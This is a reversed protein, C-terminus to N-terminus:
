HGIEVVVTLRSNPTPNPDNVTGSAGGAPSQLSAVSSEGTQQTASFVVTASTAGEPLPLEAAVGAMLARNSVVVQGAASVSLFGNASPVIRLRKEATVSYDFSFTAATKDLLQNQAFGGFAQRAGGGGGRGAAVAGPPIVTMSRPAAAPSPAPAPPPAQVALEQKLADAPRDAAVPAAGQAGQQQPPPPLAPTAGRRGQEVAVPAPLPVAPRVEPPEAVFPAPADSVLPPDQVVVALRKLEPPQTLYVGLLVAAVTAAAAWTWHPNELWKKQSAAPEVAALLRARVGPAEILEKLEQERALEDFLEQDDLAAAFLAQRESETLTGTAYGAILKHIDDRTM